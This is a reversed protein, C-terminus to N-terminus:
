QLKKLEDQIEQLQSELSSDYSTKINSKDIKQPQVKNTHDKKLIKPIKLKPLETKLEKIEKNFNEMQKQLNIKRTLEENRLKHYIKVTRLIKLLSMELSLLNKKSQLLEDYDFKVHILEENSNKNKSSAM